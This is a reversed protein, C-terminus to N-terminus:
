LLVYYNMIVLLVSFIPDMELFEHFFVKIPAEIKKVLIPLWISVKMFKKAHISVVFIHSM